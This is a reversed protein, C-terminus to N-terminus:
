SSKRSSAWANTFYDDLAKSNYKAVKGGKKKQQIAADIGFGVGTGIVVAPMKNMVSKLISFNKPDNKMIDYIRLAGKDSRGEMMYNAYHNKIMSETIEDGFDKIIGKQLMDSRVEELFPLKERGKSGSKFYDLADEFYSTKKNASSFLDSAESKLLDLGELEKDLNTKVGRQILHGIEHNIIREAEDLTYQPGVGTTFRTDKNVGVKQLNLVGPESKVPPEARSMFANHKYKTNVKLSYFEKMQDKLDYGLNGITEELKSIANQDPNPLAKIEELQKIAIKQNELLIKGRMLNNVATRNEVTMNEIGRIYDDVTIGAEKLEPTNEIVAELRAKGTPSQWFKVRDRRLNDTLDALQRHTSKYGQKALNEPVNSSQAADLIEGAASTTGTTKSVEKSLTKIEHELRFADLLEDPTLNEYGRKNLVDFQKKATALRRNAQSGTLQVPASNGFNTTLPSFNTKQIPASAKLALQKNNADARLAFRLDNITPNNKIDGYLPEIFMQNDALGAEQKTRAIQGSNYKEWFVQKFKEPDEKSLKFLEDFDELPKNYNTITSVSVPELVQQGPRGIIAAEQADIGRLKGFIDGPKAGVGGSMGKAEQLMRMYQAYMSQPDSSYEFPIRSTVTFDGYQNPLVRSSQQAFNGPADFYLADVGYPLSQLGSRMGYAQGPIHTGMHFAEAIPDGTFRSLAAADGTALPTITGSSSEAVGAGMSPTVRRGVTLNNKIGRTVVTNLLNPNDLLTQVNANAPIIGDRKALRIFSEALNIDFKGANKVSQSIINDVIGLKKGVLGFRGLDDALGVGVYNLPDLGIQFLMNGMAQAEPQYYDRMTNDDGFLPKPTYGQRATEWDGTMIGTLQNVPYALPAFLGLRDMVSVPRNKEEQTLDLNQQWASNKNGETQLARAFQTSLAPDFEYAKNSGQIIAREQPTFSEIWEARTAYKSRPNKELIPGALETNAYREAAAKTQPNEDTLRGLSQQLPDENRERIFQEKLNKQEATLYAEPDNTQMMSRLVPNGNEDLMYEPHEQLWLTPDAKTQKDYKVAKEKEIQAKSKKPAGKPSGIVMPKTEIRVEQKIFQGSPADYIRRYYKGTTKDYDLPGESGGNFEDWGWARAQQRNWDRELAQQKLEGLTQAKPLEGGEKFAKIEGNGEKFTKPIEFEYWTNGKSDTIVQGDVGFLKKTLKPYEDYKKLITQQRPGHPADIEKVELDNVFKFPKNRSVWPERIDIYASTNDSFQVQAFQGNTGYSPEIIIGQRGDNLTVNDGSKLKFNWKKPVQYGQVKVATESTPLRIKSVDGREAAYSVLEQLYREQHNKDLLSKQTFNKATVEDLELNKKYNALVANSSKEGDGFLSKLEQEQERLENVKELAEQQTKPMIRHTGQFADSQIQTVTLVDPTEADRLFHIHGLTEDPNGHVAAGRGFQGKNGLVLTQNELLNPKSFLKKGFSLEYGLREIGYDSRHTLLKRELPILQDQVVKRFENYDMKAPINEGLGKKILGVKDAGGSEKGIIGLAQEVNILGTKPEVIKSIPGNAMTSKLHLGPLNQMKWTPIVAADGVVDATVYPLVSNGTAINKYGKGLAKIDGPLSKAGAFNLLNLGGELAVDLWDGEGKNYASLAQRFDSKPNAFNYVGHAAFLPNAINGVTVGTGFLETGFLGSMGASGLAVPAMFAAEFLPVSSIAGSANRMWKEHAIADQEAKQDKFTKTNEWNTKLGAADAQERALQRSLIARLEPSMQSNTALDFQLQGIANTNSILSQRTTEDATAGLQEATPKPRFSNTYPNPNIHLGFGTSPQQYGIGIGIRPKVPGQTQAKPLGKKAKPMEDSSEKDGTSVYADHIQKLLDGRGRIVKYLDFNQFNGSNIDKDIIQQIEDTSYDKIPDINHIRRWENLRARVETPMYYYDTDSDSKFPAYISDKSYFDNTAGEGGPVTYEIPIINDLIPDRYNYLPLPNKRYYGSPQYKITKDQPANYDYWHSREHTYLSPRSFYFQPINVTADAPSYYGSANPSGSNKWNDESWPQMDISNALSLREEAIDKFQPLKARKSYWQKEWRAADDINGYFDNAAGSENFDPWDQLHKYPNPKKATINVGSNKNPLFANSNYVYYPHLPGRQTNVDATAADYADKYSLNKSRWYKYREEWYNNENQTVDGLYEIGGVIQTGDQAKPLKQEIVGMAGPFNYTPVGPRMMISGGFNGNPYVPTAQVYHDVGLMTLNTNGSQDGPIFLQKHKKDKSNRKYGTTSVKM